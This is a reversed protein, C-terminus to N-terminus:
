DWWLFLEGAEVLEALADVSGVGQDVSDPCLAYVEEAFARGPKPPRQLRLDVFDHGAGVIDIGYRLDWAHLRQILGETAIDYDGANTRAYRLLDLDTTIAAIALQSAFADDRREIGGVFARFGEPLRAQVQSVLAKATREELLVSAVRPERYDLHHVFLYPRPTAGTVEALVRVLEAPVRNTPDPKPCRVTGRLRMRRTGNEESLEIDITKAAGDVTALGPPTAGRYTFTTRAKGLPAEEFSLEYKGDPMVAGGLFWGEQQVDLEADNRVVELHVAGREAECMWAASRIKTPEAGELQLDVDGYLTPDGVAAWTHGAAPESKAPESKAQESRLLAATAAPKPACAIVFSLAFLTRM